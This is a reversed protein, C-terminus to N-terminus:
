YSKEWFLDLGFQYSAALPTTLTECSRLPDVSAAILWQRSLRFELSAGVEPNVFQERPCIRPSATLFATTGLVRFQKGFAIELGSLVGTTAAPRIQLYDLPIGLDSILSYELQSSLPGLLQQSIIRSEFGSAGVGAQFSPAGVLLYSIIETESIAPRIDSSLTLTPEYLSGAIHVFVTVDEGRVARVVHRADIDVDANLDSTGFYRVEGRTVAFERTNGLGLQLRYTGRPAELTGDLRYRDRLKSM